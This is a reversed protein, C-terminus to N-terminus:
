ADLAEILPPLTRALLDFADDFRWRTRDPEDIENATVRVELAPINALACARLVAFGEMAEVGCGTTGTVRASTGIATVHADPLAARAADLMRRDPHATSSVLDSDTDCYRSENGIVIRPEDFGREGAIGVHLVADPRREALARATAAAADVPGIGCAVGDHTGALERETAAIVLLM